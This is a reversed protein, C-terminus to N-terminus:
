SYEEIQTSGHFGVEDRVEDILADLKQKEETSYNMSTEDGSQKRWGDQMGDHVLGYREIFRQQLRHNFNKTQRALHSVRAIEMAEFLKVQSKRPPDPLLRMAKRRFLIYWDFYPNILGLEQDKYFIEYGQPVFGSFEWDIISALKYWTKGDATETKRAMLNRPLLDNHCFIASDRLEVLDERTLHLDPMHSIAPHSPRVKLGGREDESLVIRSGDPEIKRIIFTVFNLCSEFFGFMPGGFKLDPQVVLATSKLVEKVEPSSPTLKAFREIASVLDDVLENKNEWSILHWVEELTCGEIFQIVSYQLLEGSKGQVKGLEHTTPVFEPVAAAGLQQFAAVEGFRNDSTKEIRVVVKDDRYADINHDFQVVRVSKLTTRLLVSRPTTKQSTFIQSLIHEDIDLRQDAPATM